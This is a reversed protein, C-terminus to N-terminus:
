VWAPHNLSLACLFSEGFNEFQNGTAALADFVIYSSNFIHKSLTFVPLRLLNFETQVEGQRQDRTLCSPNIVLVKHGTLPWSHM